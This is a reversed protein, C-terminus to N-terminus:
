IQVLTQSEKHLKNYMKYSDCFLPTEAPSITDNLKHFRKIKLLFLSKYHNITKKNYGLDSDGDYHNLSHNLQRYCTSVSFGFDTM